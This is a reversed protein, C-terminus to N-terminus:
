GGFKGIIVHGSGDVQGDEVVGFSNLDASQVSLISKGGSSESGGEDGSINGSM